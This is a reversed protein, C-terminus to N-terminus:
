QKPAGKKGHKHTRQGPVKAISRAIGLMQDNSLTQLLSNSVWYANDGQRWAILRVRDGDLFIDYDRGNISRTESPSNLIPPDTWGHIGQFGFYDGQPLQLVMKYAGVREKSTDRFHYVRPVQVYIAGSPLRRPYFVPFSRLTRAAVKVALDHSFQGAPV